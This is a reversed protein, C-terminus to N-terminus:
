STTASGGTDPLARMVVRAVMDGGLLTMPATFMWSGIITTEELRLRIVVQVVDNTTDHGADVTYPLDRLGMADAAYAEAEAPTLDGKAMRRATDRAVNWMETHTIYITTVDIVLALLAVIVPIWLIFEITVSGKEDRLFRDSSVM